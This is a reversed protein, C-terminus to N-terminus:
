PWVLLVRTTHSGARVEFKAVKFLSLGLDGATTGLADLKAVLKEAQLGAAHVCCHKSAIVPPAAADCSLATGDAAHEGQRANVPGQM